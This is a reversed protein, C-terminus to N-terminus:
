QYTPLYIALYILLCLSLYISLCVSLCVSRLHPIALCINLSVHYKECSCVTYEYAPILEDRKGVRKVQWYSHATRMYPVSSM